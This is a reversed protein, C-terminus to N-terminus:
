SIARSIQEVFKLEAEASDIIDKRVYPLGLEDSGSNWDAGKTNFTRQKFYFLLEDLDQTESKVELADVTYEQPEVIEINSWEDSKLLNGTNHHLDFFRDILDTRIKDSQWVEIAFECIKKWPEGGYADEKPIFSPGVFVNGAWTLFDIIEQSSKEALFEQIKLHPDSQQGFIARTRIGAIEISYELERFITSLLLIKVLLWIKKVESEAKNQLIYLYKIQENIKYYRDSELYKGEGWNNKLRTIKDLLREYFYFRFIVELARVQKNANFVEILYQNKPIQPSVVKSEMM